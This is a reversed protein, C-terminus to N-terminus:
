ARNGFLASGVRIHTAGEQIAVDFDASMGMSLWTANRSEGLEKLARFYSRSLEPDHTLPGVTMLGRYCVNKYSPLVEIIRDINEPFVGSKQTEKAINVEILIDIQKGSKDIEVLQHPASVTHIVDFHTAIKKAKNSQLHGIFHWIIDKPLVQIKPLAEQFRSEGFHRIGLDYATQIDEVSVTKSVAILTVSSPDRGCSLCARAIEHKIRNIQSLM